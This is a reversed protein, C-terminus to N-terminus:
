EALAAPDVRLAVRAVLGFQFGQPLFLASRLAKSKTPNQVKQKEIHRELKQFKEYSGTKQEKPKLQSIFNCKLM